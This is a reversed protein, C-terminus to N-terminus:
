GFLLPPPPPEAADTDAAIAADTIAQRCRFRQRIAYRRRFSIPLSMSHFIADIIM